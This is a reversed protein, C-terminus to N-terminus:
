EPPVCRTYLLRPANDFSLLSVQTYALSSEERLQPRTRAM